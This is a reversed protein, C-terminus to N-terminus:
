AVLIDLGCRHSLRDPRVAEQLHFRLDPRRRGDLVFTLWLVLILSQWSAELPGEGDDTSHASGACRGVLM